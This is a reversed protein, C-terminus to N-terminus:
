SWNWVNWKLMVAMRQLFSHLHSAFVAVNWILLSTGELAAADSLVEDADNARSAAAIEARLRKHWQRLKKKDFLGLVKLDECSALIDASTNPSNQFKIDQLMGCSASHLYLLFRPVSVTLLWEFVADTEFSIQNYEDLLPQPDESHIFEHASIKRHLVLGSTEYSFPANSAMCAASGVTSFFCVGMPM